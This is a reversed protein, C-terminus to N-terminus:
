FPLDNQKEIEAKVEESGQNLLIALIDSKRWVSPKVPEGFMTVICERITQKSANKDFKFVHQYFTGISVQSSGLNIENAFGTTEFFSRIDEINKSEIGKVETDKQMSDYWEQWDRDRKCQQIFKLFLEYIQAYTLTKFKKEIHFELFRRESEDQVFYSLPHNSTFVYNAKAQLHVQNKHIFRVDVGDSTIRNKLTDYSKSSDKPMAEDLLVARCSCIKPSVFDKFGLEQALTSEYNRINFHDKEGNLISVITAAITTKGTGKGKGWFYVAKNLSAPCNYEKSQCVFYKLMEIQLDTFRFAEKLNIISKRYLEPSQEVNVLEEVRKTICRIANSGFWYQNATGESWREMTDVSRSLNRMQNSFALGRLGYNKAMQKDNLFCPENLYESYIKKCLERIEKQSDFTQSAIYDNISDRGVIETWIESSLLENIDTGSDQKFQAEMGSPNGSFMNAKKCDEIFQEIPWAMAERYYPEPDCKTAFCAAVILSYSLPKEPHNEHWWLIKKYM